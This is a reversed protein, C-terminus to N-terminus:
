WGEPKRASKLMRIELFDDDIFCNNCSYDDNDDSSLEEYHIMQFADSVLDMNPDQNSDFIDGQEM